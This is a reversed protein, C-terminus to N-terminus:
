IRKTEFDTWGAFWLQILPAALTMAVRILKRFVIALKYSPITQADPKLSQALVNNRSFISAFRSAEWVSDWYEWFSITM